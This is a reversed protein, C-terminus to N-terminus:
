YQIECIDLIDLVLSELEDNTIIGDGVHDLIKIRLQKKTEEIDNM